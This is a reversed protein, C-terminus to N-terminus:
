FIYLQLCCVCIIYVCICSVLDRYVINQGHLYELASAVDRAVTSREMWIRHLVHVRACCYGM